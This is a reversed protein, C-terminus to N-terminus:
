NTHIISDVTKKVDPPLDQFAKKIDENHRMLLTDQRPDAGMLLVRASDDIVDVKSYVMDHKSSYYYEFYITYVSDAKGQDTTHKLDSFSTYMHVSGPSSVKNMFAHLGKNYLPAYVPNESGVSKSIDTWDQTVMPSMGPDDLAVVDHKNELEDWGWAFLLVIFLIIGMFIRQGRIYLKAKRPQPPHLDLGNIILGCLWGLLAVILAGAISIVLDPIIESFDTKHIINVIVSLLGFALFNFLWYRLAIQYSKM